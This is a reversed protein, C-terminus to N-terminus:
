SVPFTRVLKPRLRAYSERTLVMAEVRWARGDAFHEGYVGDHVFGLRLYMEIAARNFEFVGLRVRLLGLGAFAHDLLLMMARTGVGRGRAHREGLEIFCEADEAGADYEKLGVNGVHEGDLEIAYSRRRPDRVLSDLYRDADAASYPTIPGYDAQPVVVTFRIVELSAMWRRVRVADGHRLPRLRTVGAPTLVHATVVSIYRTM